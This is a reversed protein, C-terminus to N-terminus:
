PIELGSFLAEPARTKVFVLAAEADSVAEIQSVLALCLLIILVCAVPAWRWMQEQWSERFLVRPPPPQTGLRSIVKREWGKGVMPVEREKLGLALSRRVKEWAEKTLMM